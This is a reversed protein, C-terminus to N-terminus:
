RPSHIRSYFTHIQFNNPDELGLTKNKFEVKHYVKLSTLVVSLSTNSVWSSHLILLIVVISWHGSALIENASNSEKVRRVFHM